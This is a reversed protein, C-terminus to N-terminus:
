QKEQGNLASSKSKILGYVSGTFGVDYPLIIQVIKNGSMLYWAPTTVNKYKYVNDKIYKSRNSSLPMDKKYNKKAEHTYVVVDKSLSKGDFTNLNSDFSATAFTLGTLIIEGSVPDKKQAKDILELANYTFQATMWKTIYEPLEPALGALLDLDKAKQLYNDPWTGGLKADSYGAARLVFTMLETTKVQGKPDFKNNGVGLTIGNKVAYNIYPAAWGHGGMDTFGSDPVSQTATGFLESYPPDMARVVMACAQERTLKQNPHFLGDEDGTIAGRDMLKQVALEYSAGTVDSPVAAFALSTTMLMLILLMSLIKFGNKRM